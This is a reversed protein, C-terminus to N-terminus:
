PIAVGDVAFNEWAPGELLTYIRPVLYSLGVLQDGEKEYLPVLTLFGVVDADFQEAPPGELISDLEDQSIMACALFRPTDLREDEEGFDQM